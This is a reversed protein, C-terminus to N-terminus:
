EMFNIIKKAENWLKDMENRSLSEFSRGKNSVNKEMLKFRKEFKITAERLAAEPHFGGFRAVNVLTFLFDGFEMTFATDQNEGAMKKELEEKFEVWEEEAKEMVETIDRWDFGSGAARESIRYARLLAPLKTPVSDLLSNLTVNKKEKVKIDRWQKRLDKTSNVKSDGYVHPHRRIMKETNIKAANDIDFLGKEKYLGAIFFIHFMVDGLEECVAVHNDSEIAELLEYVEEVLYIGMSKATQERDWLCGNEGRLTEILEILAALGPLKDSM